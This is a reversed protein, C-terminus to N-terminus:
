NAKKTGWLTALGLGANIDRNGNRFAQVRAQALRGALRRTISPCYQSMYTFLLIPHRSIRLLSRPDTM